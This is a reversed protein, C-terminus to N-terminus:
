TVLIVYATKEQNEKIGVAFKATVNICQSDVVSREDTAIREYINTSSLEQVLTNIYRDDCFLFILLVKILYLWFM